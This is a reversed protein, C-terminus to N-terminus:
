HLAIPVSGKKHVFCPFSTVDGYIFGVEWISKLYPPVVGRLLGCPAGWPTEKSLSLKEAIVTERRSRFRTPGKQYCIGRQSSQNHQMDFFGFFMARPVRQM